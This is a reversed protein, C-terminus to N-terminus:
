ELLRIVADYEDHEFSPAKEKEKRAIDLATEGFKNKITKDTGRKLLINVTGKRGYGAATMLATGGVKNQLNPQAGNDLLLSIVDDKEWLGSALMLPTSGQSDRINVDAGHKLLSRIISLYEQNVEEGLTNFNYALFHLIHVGPPNDWKENPNAGAELLREVKKVDPLRVARILAERTTSQAKEMSYLSCFTSAVAFFLFINKMIFEKNIRIIYLTEILSLLFLAITM